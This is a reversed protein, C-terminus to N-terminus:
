SVGPITGVIGDFYTGTMTGSWWTGGSPYVPHALMHAAGVEVMITGLFTGTATGTSPYVMVSYSTGTEPYIPRPDIRPRNVSGWYEIYALKIADIDDVTIISYKPFANGLMITGTTGIECVIVCPPVSASYRQAMAIASNLDGLGQGTLIFNDGRDFYGGPKIDFYWQARAAISQHQETTLRM